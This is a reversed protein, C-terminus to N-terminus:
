ADIGASSLREERAIIYIFDYSPIHLYIFYTSIDGAEKGVETCSEVREEREGNTGKGKERVRAGRMRSGMTRSGERFDNQAFGKRDKKRARIINLHRPKTAFFDKKM